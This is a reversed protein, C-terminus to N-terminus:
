PHAHTMWKYKLEVGGLSMGVDALPKLKPAMLNMSILYTVTTAAKRKKTNNIYSCGILTAPNISRNSLM